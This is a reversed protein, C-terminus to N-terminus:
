AAMVVAIGGAVILCGAWVLDLNFWARRLLGLGLYRYVCWAIGGGVVVMAATHVLAVLSASLLGVGALQAMAMHGSDAGHSMTGLGLYVPLLMLGAGHATAMLFSWLVLHESGIRAMFRPHRRSALKYVGFGVLLLGAFIGLGRVRELSVTVLAFPLLVAAMALVHGVAIPPVAAFVASGRKEQMGNSVAFLWGMGPNIGHYCGLGIIALWAGPHEAISM